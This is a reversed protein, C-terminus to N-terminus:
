LDAGRLEAGQLNARYLESGQLNARFLNAEQLNVNQIDAGQLNAVILVTGQLKAGSLNAGQLNAGRLNAEQLNAYSFDAELEIKEYAKQSLDANQLNAGVLDNKNELLKKRWDNVKKEGQEVLHEWCFHTGWRADMECGDKKCKKNPEEM